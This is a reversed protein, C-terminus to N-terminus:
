RPHAVPVVTSVPACGIERELSPEVRLVLTGAGGAGRGNQGRGRRQPPSETECPNVMGCLSQELSVRTERCISPERNPVTMTPSEWRSGSNRVVGDIGFCSTDSTRLSVPAFDERCAWGDEARGPRLLCRM